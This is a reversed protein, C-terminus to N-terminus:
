SPGRDRCRGLPQNAAQRNSAGVAELVHPDRTQYFLIRQDLYDHLLGRISAANSLVRARIYETGIANAEDAECRKRLDYRSVAMSFTFGVLLGLLTLTAGLIVDFDDHIASIRAAFRIGIKAAVFLISISVFFLVAPYDTLDMVRGFSIRVAPFILLTM